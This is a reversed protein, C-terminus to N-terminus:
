RALPDTGPKMAPEAASATATMANSLALTVAVLVLAILAKARRSASTHHKLQM